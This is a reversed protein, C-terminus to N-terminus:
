RGNAVARLVVDCGVYSVVVGVVCVFGCSLFWMVMADMADGHRVDLGSATPSVGFVFWSIFCQCRAEEELGRYLRPVDGEGAEMENGGVFIAGAIVSMEVIKEIWRPCCERIKEWHPERRIHHGCESAYM